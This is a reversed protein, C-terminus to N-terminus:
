KKVIKTEVVEVYYAKKGVLTLKNTDIIGAYVKVKKGISENNETFRIGKAQGSEKPISNPDRLGYEIEVWWKHNVEISCEGDAWCDNKADTIIGEFRVTTSDKSYMVKATDQKHVLKSDKCSIFTMTGLLFLNLIQILKFIMKM